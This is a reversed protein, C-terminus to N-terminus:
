RLTMQNTQTALITASIDHLFANLDYITMGLRHAREIAEGSPLDRISVAAALANSDCVRAIVQLPTNSAAWAEKPDVIMSNQVTFRVEFARKTRLGQLLQRLLTFREPPALALKEAMEDVSLTKVPLVQSPQVAIPENSAVPLIQPALRSKASKVPIPQISVLAQVRFLAERMGEASYPKPLWIWHSHKKAASMESWSRDQGSVLLVSPRDGLVAILRELSTESAQAWGHAAMDLVITAADHVDGQHNAAAHIWGWSPMSRKMFHDFVHADRSTMGLVLLNM